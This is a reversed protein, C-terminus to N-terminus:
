RPQLAEVLREIRELKKYVGAALAVIGRLASALNRQAEKVDPAHEEVIRLIDTLAEVEAQVHDYPDAKM